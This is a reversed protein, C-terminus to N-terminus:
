QLSAQLQFTPDAIHEILRLPDPYARNGFVKSSRPLRAKSQAYFGMRLKETELLRADLNHKKIYFNIAYEMKGLASLVTEM